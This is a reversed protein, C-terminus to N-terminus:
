SRTAPSVTGITWAFIRIILAAARGALGSLEEFLAAIRLKGFFEM